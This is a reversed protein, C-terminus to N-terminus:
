YARTIAHALSNYSQPGRLTGLIAGSSDLVFAVPLERAPHSIGYRRAMQNSPDFVNPFRWRHRRIFREGAARNSGSDVGIIRTRGYSSGAFQAVAGAQTGCAGCSDSWFVVMARQGRLSGLRVPQGSLMQGTLAPARKRDM